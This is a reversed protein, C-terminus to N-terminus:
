SSLSLSVLLRILKSRNDTHTKSFVNKLHTKVTHTSLGLQEAMESDTLGVTLAEAVRVEAPTLGYTKKLLIEDLRIPEASDTLFAIACPAAGGDGFESQAALSSFNLLYAQRGSPRPISVARSFHETHLIDPCVASRIGRQLNDQTRNDEAVLEGLATGGYRVRLRLGDEDELIRRAVRNAFIVSGEADFLLVGSPMRDLVALNAAIKIDAERLKAMVGFARSVHPLVILLRDREAPTFPGERESRYFSLCTPLGNPSTFDFVASVLLHDIGNPHNLERYIPAQQIQEYPVIDEGISAYGEVFLGRAVVTNAMIDEGHWRTAWLHMVSEPIAHNFYFGGKEPPHLPTFLLAQKANVWDAIAPVITNWCEPEIAGQYIRDILQSLRALEAVAQTTGAFSM